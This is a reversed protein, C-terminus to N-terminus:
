GSLRTWFGLDKRGGKRQDPSFSPVVFCSKDADHEITPTLTTAIPFSARVTKQSSTAISFRRPGHGHPISTTFVSSSKCLYASLESSNSCGPSLLRNCVTHFARSFFFIHNGLTSLWLSFVRLVTHHNPDQSKVFRHSHVYDIYDALTASCLEFVSYFTGAEQWAEIFRVVAVHRNLKNIRIEERALQRELRSSYRVVKVAVPQTITFLCSSPTLRTQVARVSPPPPKKSVNDKGRENAEFVQGFAGEGLLRVAEYVM